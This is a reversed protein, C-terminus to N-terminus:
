WVRQDEQVGPLQAFNDSSEHKNFSQEDIRGMQVTKPIKATRMPDETNTHRGKCALKNTGPYNGQSVMVEKTIKQSWRM